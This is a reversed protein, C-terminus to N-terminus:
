GAPDFGGGKGFNCIDTENDHVNNDAKLSSVGNKSASV